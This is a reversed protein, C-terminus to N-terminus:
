EITTVTGNVNITRNVTFSVYDLRDIGFPTATLLEMTWTGDSDFVAEYDKLVFVKDQPVSDYVILASGPIV